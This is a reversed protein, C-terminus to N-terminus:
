AIAVEVMPAALVDRIGTFRDLDFVLEIDFDEVLSALGSCRELRERHDPVNLALLVASANFIKTKVKVYRPDRESLERPREM